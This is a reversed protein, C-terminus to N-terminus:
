DITEFKQCFRIFGTCCPYATNGDYNSCDPATGGDEFGAPCAPASPSRQSTGVIAIASVIRAGKQLSALPAMKRCFSQTSYSGCAPASQVVGMVHSQDANGSFGAPCNSGPVMKVEMVVDPDETATKQCLSRNTFCQMPLPSGPPLRYCDGIAGINSYGAPCGLSGQSRCTPNLGCSGPGAGAFLFDNFRKALRQRGDESIGPVIGPDSSPLPQSNGSNIPKAAKKVGSSGSFNSGDCSVMIIGTIVSLLTKKFRVVRM